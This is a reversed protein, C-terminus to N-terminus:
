QSGKLRLLELPVIAFLPEYPPLSVTTRATFLLFLLFLRFFRSGQAKVKAPLEANSSRSPDRPFPWSFSSLPFPSLRHSAAEVKLKVAEVRARRRPRPLRSRKPIRARVIKSGPDKVGEAVLCSAAM